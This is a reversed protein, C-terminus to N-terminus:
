PVCGLRGGLLAAGDVSGADECAFPVMLTVPNGGEVSEPLDDIRVEAAGIECPPETCEWYVPVDETTFGCGVGPRLRRSGEPAYLARNVDLQAFCVSPDTSVLLEDFGTVDLTYSRPEGFTIELVRRGRPLEFSRIEPADFPRRAEGDITVTASRSAHHVHLTADAVLGLYAYVVLGGLCSLGLLAPLGFLLCGRAFRRGARRGREIAEQTELDTTM